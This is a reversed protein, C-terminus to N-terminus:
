VATGHRRNRRRLYLEAWILVVHAVVVVSAFATDEWTWAAGTAGPRYDFPPEYRLLLVMGVDFAFITLLLTRVIFRLLGM